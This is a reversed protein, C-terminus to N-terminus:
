AARQPEAAAVAAAHATDTGTVGAAGAAGRRHGSLRALHGSRGAAVVALLVIGIAGSGALALQPGMAEAAGGLLMMGIPQTALVIYRVSVVRAKMEGPTAAQSAAMNNIFFPAGAAAAAVTLLLTLPYSTSLAMGVVFAAFLFAAVFQQRADGMRGELVLALVAGAIAGVGVAVTIGGLGGAGRHLVDEAFTPFMAGWTNVFIVMVALAAFMWRLDRNSHIERVGGALSKFVNQRAREATPGINRVLLYFPAAAACLATTAILAATIGPGDLLTGAIAPAALLTLHMVLMYSGVARREIRAPVTDVILAQRAPSSLAYSVGVIATTALVHWAQAEGMASLAALSGYALLMLAEGWFVVKRRDFRDALYGGAPGILLAPLLHLSPVLSVLFPSGTMEQVMWGRVILQGVLATFSAFQILAFLRFPGSSFGGQWAPSTIFKRVPVANRTAPIVARLNM